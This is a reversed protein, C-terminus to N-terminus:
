FKESEKSLYLAVKTRFDRPVRIRHSRVTKPVYYRKLEPNLEKLLDTSIDFRKSLEYLDTGGPVFQYSYALRKVNIPDQFGYYAPNKLILATALFKPVYDRTEKPFGKKLSLKWFDRTGHRRILKRLRTEGMNYASLALYWDDFLKYLRDLYQAAAWTSKILDHREDLWWNIELGYSEATPKIFQWYGVAQASSVAKPNLGSEILPLYALDTPLERKKLLAKIKPLKKESRLLWTNFYSKKNQQFVKIWHNVQPTVQIPIDPRKNEAWSSNFFFLISLFCVPM